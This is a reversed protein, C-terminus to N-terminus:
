RLQRLSGDPETQYIHTPQHYCQYQPGEDHRITNGITQGCPLPKGNPWRPNQDAIGVPKLSSNPQTVVRGHKFKPIPTNQPQGPTEPKQAQSPTVAQPGTPRQVAQSPAVPPPSAYKPDNGCGATVLLAALPLLLRTHMTMSLLVRVSM